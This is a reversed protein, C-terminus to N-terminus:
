LLIPNRKRKMYYPNNRNYDTVMEGDHYSGMLHGVEHALIKPTLMDFAGDKNLRVTVVMVPARCVIEGQIFQFKIMYCKCPAFNALLLLALLGEQFLQINLQHFSFEREGSGALSDVRGTLLLMADYSDREADCANNIDNAYVQFKTLVDYIGDADDWSM